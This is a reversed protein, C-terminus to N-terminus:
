LLKSYFRACFNYIMEQIKPILNSHKVFNEYGFSIVHKVGMNVFAKALENSLPTALVVLQVNLACARSHNHSEDHKHHHHLNDPLLLKTLNDITLYEILGNKGDELCLKGEEFVHSSLHLLKCGHDKVYELLERNL